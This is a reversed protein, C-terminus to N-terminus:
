TVTGLDNGKGKLPAASFFVSEGPNRMRTREAKMKSQNGGIKPM